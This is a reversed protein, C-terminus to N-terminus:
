VADRALILARPRRKSRIHMCYAINSMVQPFSPRIFCKPGSCTLAALACTALSFQRRDHAAM